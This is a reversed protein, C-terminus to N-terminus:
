PVDLCTSLSTGIEDLNKTHYTGDACTIGPHTEHFIGRPNEWGPVSWLHMMYGTNDIVFGGYKDCLERDINESDAGLPADVSGDPRFAICVNTHYHWIDNPGAFGEPPNASGFSNYMFGVLRSDPETGSYILMPALVNTEDIVGSSINGGRGYHAGLGPSFPGSRHYGAAEATAVTPYLAVLEATRALQHALLATTEADMPEPAASHQHGNMLLSFGLDDVPAGGTTAAADTGHVHTDGAGTANPDTAALASASGSGAAVEAGAENASHVHGDAATVTGDASVVAAGAHADHAHSRASPSALVATTMAAIALPALMGFNGFSTTSHDSRRILLAAALLVAVVEIAVTFGDIFMVTEAHHAHPGVPLGSTRSVIWVAIAAVNVAISAWLMISRQQMAISVGLGLQLWGVVAFGIGETLWEGAHGPVMVLHVVASGVLLSAALMQVVGILGISRTTTGPQSLTAVGMNLGGLDLLQESLVACCRDL